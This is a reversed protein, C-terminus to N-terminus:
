FQLVVTVGAGVLIAPFALYLVCTYRYCAEAYQQANTVSQALEPVELQSSSPDAHGAARGGKAVGQPTSSRELSCTDAPGVAGCQTGNSHVAKPQAPDCSVAATSAMTCPLTPNFAALCRQVSSLVPLLLQLMGMIGNLPTRCTHTM